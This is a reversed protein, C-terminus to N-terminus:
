AVTTEDATEATTEDATEATTEDVSEEPDTKTTEEVTTDPVDINQNFHDDPDIDKQIVFVVLVLVVFVVGVITTLKSLTKEWTKGKTKGFFTDSSGGSVAGMGKSKGEQMLVAIVIFVAAVLLIVGLITEFGSM